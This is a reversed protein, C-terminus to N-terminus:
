QLEPPTYEPVGVRCLFRHPGDIIQFSDADILAVTAEDSILIGSHNIDGIVCAGTKHVDAIANATNLAAHVLFKYNATPFHQKRAGPAYLEFIPKHHRVLRMVFGRFRGQHDRAIALPFAVLSSKEALRLNVFTTIKSERSPGDAVTYIKVAHGSDDGLVY